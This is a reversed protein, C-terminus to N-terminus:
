VVLRKREPELAKTMRRADVMPGSLTTEKTAGPNRQHAFGMGGQIFCVLGDYAKCTAEVYGHTMDVIKQADDKYSQSWEALAHFFRDNLWSANLSEEEGQSMERMLKWPFSIVNEAGKLGLGVLGRAVDVNAKYIVNFQDISSM